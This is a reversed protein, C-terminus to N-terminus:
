RIVVLLTAALTSRHGTAMEGLGRIVKERELTSAM